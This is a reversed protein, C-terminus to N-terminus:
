LRVADRYRERFRSELVESLEKTALTIETLRQDSYSKAARDPQDFEHLTIARRLDSVKSHIPQSHDVIECASIIMGIRGLDRIIQARLLPCTPDSAPRMYFDVAKTHTDYILTIVFDITARIEKRAERRDNQNSVIGWGLIVLIWTVIPNM